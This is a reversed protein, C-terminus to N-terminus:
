RGIRDSLRGWVPAFLFQMISYVAMLGGLAVRYRALADVGYYRARGENVFAKIARPDIATAVSM